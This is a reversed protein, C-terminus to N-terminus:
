LEEVEDSEYVIEETNADIMTELDVLRIHLDMIEREQDAIVDECTKIKLLLGIIMFAFILCVLLCIWIEM